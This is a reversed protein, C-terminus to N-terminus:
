GMKTHDTLLARATVSHGFVALEAVVNIASLAVGVGRHFQGAALTAVLFSPHGLSLLHVCQAAITTM